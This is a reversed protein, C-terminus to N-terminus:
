DGDAVEKVGVALCEQWSLLKLLDEFGLIDVGGLGDDGAAARTHCCSDDVCGQGFSTIRGFLSSQVVSAPSLPCLADLRVLTQDAFGFLMNSPINSSRQKTPLNIGMEKTYACHDPAHQTACYAGKPDFLEAFANGEGKSDRRGNM